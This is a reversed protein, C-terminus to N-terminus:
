QFIISPPFIISFNHYSPLSLHYNLPMPQFFLTIKQLESNMIVLYERFCKVNTNPFLAEHVKEHKRMTLVNLAFSCQYKSKLLIAHCVYRQLEFPTHLIRGELDIQKWEFLLSDQTIQKCKLSTFSLDSVEEWGGGDKQLSSKNIDQVFSERVRDGASFHGPTVAVRCMSWSGNGRTCGKCEQMCLPMKCESCQGTSFQPM